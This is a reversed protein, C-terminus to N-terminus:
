KVWGKQAKMYQFDKAYPYRKTFSDTDDGFIERLCADWEDRIYDAEVHDSFALCFHEDLVKCHGFIKEISGRNLVRNKGMVDPDHLTQSVFDVVLQAGTRMGAEFFRRDREARMAIYNNKAM